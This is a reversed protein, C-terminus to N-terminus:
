SNLKEKRRKTKMKLRKKNTKFNKSKIVYINKLTNTLKKNRKYAKTKQKFFISFSILFLDVRFAFM